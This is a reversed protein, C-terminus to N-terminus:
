KYFKKRFWLGVPVGILILGTPEPVPNDPIDFAVTIADNGCLMSWILEVRNNRAGIVDIPIWGEITYDFRNFYDSVDYSGQDKAAPDSEILRLNNSPAQWLGDVFHNGYKAQDDEYEKIVSPYTNVEFDHNPDDWPDEPTIITGDAAFLEEFEDNNGNAFISGSYIAGRQILGYEGNSFDIYPLDWAGTDGYNPDWFPLDHESFAMGYMRGNYAPNLSFLPENTSGDRGDYTMYNNYSDGVSIALDGAWQEYQNEPPIPFNTHITFYINNDTIDYGISKVDFRVPDNAPSADDDYADHVMTYSPTYGSDPYFNAFAVVPALVLCIITVICVRLKM